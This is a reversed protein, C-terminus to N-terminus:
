HYGEGAPTKRQLSQRAWPMMREGDDGRTGGEQHGVAGRPGAHRLSGNMILLVAIWSVIFNAFFLTLFVILSATMQVAAEVLCGIALSLLVGSTVFVVYLLARMANRWIGDDQDSKLLVARQTTHLRPHNSVM